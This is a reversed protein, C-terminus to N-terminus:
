SHWRLRFTVGRLSVYRNGFWTKAGPGLTNFWLQFVFRSRLHRGIRSDAVSAFDHCRLRELVPALEANIRALWHDEFASRDGDSIGHRRALRRVHDIEVERLAYYDAWRRVRAFPVRSFRMELHRILAGDDHASDPLAPILVASQDCRELRVDGLPVRRSDITICLGPVRGIGAWFGDELDCFEFPTEQGDVVITVPQWEVGVPGPLPQSMDRSALLAQGRPSAVYPSMLSWSRTKAYTDGDEQRHSTIAISSGNAGLFPVGTSM